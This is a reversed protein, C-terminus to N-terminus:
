HIDAWAMNSIRLPIRGDVSLRSPSISRAAPRVRTDRLLRGIHIESM